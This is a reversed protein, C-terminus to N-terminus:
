TLEVLPPLNELNGLKKIDFNVIKLKKLSVPLYELFRSYFKLSFDPDDIHLEEIYAPLTIDLIKEKKANDKRNPNILICVKKVSEPIREFIYKLENSVQCVTIKSLKPTLSFDLFNNPIDIFMIETIEDLCKYIVEEDHLNTKRNHYIFLGCQLFIKGTFLACM